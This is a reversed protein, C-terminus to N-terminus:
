VIIEVWGIELTELKREDMKVRLGTGAEGESVLTSEGRVRTSLHIGLIGRPM